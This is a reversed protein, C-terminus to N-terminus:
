RWIGIVFRLKQKSEALDNNSISTICSFDILFYFLGEGLM